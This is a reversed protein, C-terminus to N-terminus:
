LTENEWEEQLERTDCGLVWDILNNLNFLEPLYNLISNM